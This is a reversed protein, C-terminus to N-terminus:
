FHAASGNTWNSAVKGGALFEVPKTGMFLAVGRTELNNSVANVDKYTEFQVLSCKSKM